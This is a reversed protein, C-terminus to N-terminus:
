SLANLMNGYVKNLDAVQTQLKKANTAFAESASMGEEVAKQMKQTNAAMEAYAQAQAQINKLQLEYATNLGKMQQEYATNMTKMQQAFTQNIAEIQQKGSQQLQTATQQMAAGFEASQAKAQSLNQGIAANEANIKQMDANATQYASVLGQASTALSEQVGAFGVVAKGAKQMNDALVNGATAVETLQTLQSATKALGAVGDKLAKMEDDSLVPVQQKDANGIGGTVEKAEDGVLQPFVNEWHYTVHPKEFIGIFFLFSETFMGAMLVYSAGPWHLIKFLAGIIVVSAGLSYVMQVTYAHGAYWEVVKDWWGRNAKTTNAM